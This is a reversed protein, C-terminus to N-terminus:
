AAGKSKIGAAYEAKDCGFDHYGRWLMGLTNFEAESSEVTPTRNGNLFSVAMPKVNDGFLFWATTSNGTYGSNSLRWQVIPRYKGAHINATPNGASAVIEVSQHLREAIFKLETPVLLKTANIGAGVRKSGDASPSTLNMLAVIGLELGVGDL